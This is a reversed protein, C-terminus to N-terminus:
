CPRIYWMATYEVKGHDFTGYVPINSRVMTSYVVNRYIRSQWPLIYWIGTYEVKAHDFIGCQPKNSRAMM